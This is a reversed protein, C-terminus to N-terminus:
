GYHLDNIKWSRESLGLIQPLDKELVYSFLTALLLMVHDIKEPYKGLFKDLRESYNGGFDRIREFVLGPGLNTIVIGHCRPAYKYFNKGLQGAKTLYFQCEERNSSFDALWPM